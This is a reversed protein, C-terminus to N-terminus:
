QTNPTLGHDPIRFFVVNRLSFRNGAEPSPHSFAVRNPSKFFALRVLCDEKPQTFKQQSKGACDNSTRLGM